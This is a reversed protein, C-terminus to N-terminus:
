NDLDLIHTIISLYGRAKKDTDTILQGGEICRLTRLRLCSAINEGGSLISLWTRADGTLLWDAYPGAEGRRFDETTSTGRALDLRWCRAMPDSGACYAALGICKTAGIAGQIAPPLSGPPRQHIRGSIIKSLRDLLTVSHRNGDRSITMATRDPLLMPPQISMRWSDDIVTYNLRGLLSNITSLLVPPLFDVPIRIGRGVSDATVHNMAAMKHDGPGHLGQKLDFCRETIGPDPEVGIFSFLEAAVLEPNEVINEYYVRYCQDSHTEEFELTLRTEECWAAAIAAVNNGSFRTVYNEFGYGLLGFPSAELGSDIVDACHRYLCIFKTKPYLDIFPKLGRATGLSKDCWRRKGNRLLHDAFLTNVMARVSASAIGSLEGNSSAPDMLQWAKGLLGCIKLINTEPPCALEPHADLILRLLTSGSRACTLVVIPEDLLPFTLERETKYSQNAISITADPNGLSARVKRRPNAHNSRGM